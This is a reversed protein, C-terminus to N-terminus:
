FENIKKYQRYFIIGGIVLVITVGILIMIGTFNNRINAVLRGTITQKSDMKLYIEKDLCDKDFHWIYENKFKNVEDANSEIVNYDSTIILDIKEYIFDPVADADMDIFLSELQNGKAELIMIGDENTLTITEFGSESLLSSYNFNDISWLNHAGSVRMFDDRLLYKKSYDRYFNFDKIIEFQEEVYKNMDYGLREFNDKTEQIVISDNLTGDYNIHLRYEATCGTFFLCSICLAFIIIIKNKLM